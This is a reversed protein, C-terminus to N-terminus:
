DCRKRYPLAGELLRIGRFVRDVITGSRRAVATEVRIVNVHANAAAGALGHTLVLRDVQNDRRRVFGPVSVATQPGHDVIPATAPASEADVNTRGAGEAHAVLVDPNVAVRIDEAVDGTLIGLLPVVALEAIPPRGAVLKQLLLAHLHLHELGIFSHGSKALEHLAVRFLLGFFLRVAAHGASDAHGGTGGVHVYRAVDLCNAVVVKGLPQPDDVLRIREGGGTAPHACVGALRNAGLAM